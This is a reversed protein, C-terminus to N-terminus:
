APPSLHTRSSVGELCAMACKEALVAACANMDCLSQIGIRDRLRKAPPPPPALKLCRTSEQIEGSKSLSSQGFDKEAWVKWLTVRLM